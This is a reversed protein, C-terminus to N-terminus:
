KKVRAFLKELEDISTVGDIRGVVKGNKLALVTPLGFIKFNTVGANVPPLSISNWPNWTFQTFFVKGREELFHKKAFAYFVPNMKVCFPCGPDTSTFLVIRAEKSTFYPQTIYCLDQQKQFSVSCAETVQDLPANPTNCISANKPEPGPTRIPQLSLSCDKITIADTDDQRALWANALTERPAKANQLAPQNSTQSSSTSLVAAGTNASAAKAAEIPQTDLIRGEVTYVISSYKEGGWNGVGFLVLANPKSFAKYTPKNPFYLKNVRGKPDLLPHWVDPAYMSGHCTADCEFIKEFGQQLLIAEYHQEILLPSDISRHVYEMVQVKGEVPVSYRAVWGESTHQPLSIPVRVRDFPNIYPTQAQAAPYARLGFPEEYFSASPTGAPESYGPTPTTQSAQGTVQRLLHSAKNLQDFINEAHAIANFAFLAMPVIIRYNM